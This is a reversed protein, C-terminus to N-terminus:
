VGLKKWVRDYKKYATEDPFALHLEFKTPFKKENKLLTFKKKCIEQAEKPIKHKKLLKEIDEWPVSIFQNIVESEDFDKSISMNSFTDNEAVDVTSFTCGNDILLLHNKKFFFNGGHRDTNSILYDFIKARYIEAGIRNQAIMNCSNCTDNIWKQASGIEGEVTKYVTEPVLTLNFLQDLEYVLVERNYLTNIGDRLNPCEGCKSKFIANVIKDNSFQIKKTENSGSDIRISSKVHSVNTLSEGTEEVKEFIKIKHKFLKVDIHAKGLKALEHQRVVYKVHRYIARHIKQVKYYVQSELNRDFTRKYISLLELQRSLNKAMKFDTIFNVFVLENLLDKTYKIDLEIPPIPKSPKKISVHEEYYTGGRPGRQVRVGKPPKESPKLYIKSKLFM